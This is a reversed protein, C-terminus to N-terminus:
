SKRQQSEQLHKKIVRECKQVFDNCEINKKEVAKITEMLQKMKSYYRNSIDAKSMQEELIKVVKSLRQKRRETAQRCKVEASYSNSWVAALHASPASSQQQQRHSSSPVPSSPGGSPNKLSWFLLPRLDQPGSSQQLAQARVSNFPHNPRYHVMQNIGCNRSSSAASGSAQGGAMTSPPPHYAVAAQESSGPWPGPARAPVPSPFPRVLSRWSGGNTQILNDKNLNIVCYPLVQDATKIVRMTVVGDGGLCVERSDEEPSLNHHGTGPGRSVSGTVRVVRGLLVRCVVLVNGHKLCLAPYDSMYIGRGFAM